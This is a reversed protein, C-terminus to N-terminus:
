RRRMEFTVTARKAREIRVIRPGGVAQYGERHVEIKHPGESLTRAEHPTGFGYDSDDIYIDAFNDGDPFIASISARGDSNSNIFFDLECDIGNWTVTDTWSGYDGAEIRVWHLGPPLDAASFPAVSAVQKGDIWIGEVVERLSFPTANITLKAAAPVPKPKRDPVVVPKDEVPKVPEERIVLQTDKKPIITTDDRVAFSSDTATDRNHELILPPLEPEPQPAFIMYGVAVAAILLLPYLVWRAVFSSKVKPEKQQPPQQDKRKETTIPLTTEDPRSIERGVQKKPPVPRRTASDEFSLADRIAAAFDGATAFREAPPKAMAHLIIEEQVRTLDSNFRTPPPPPEELHQKMIGFESEATFPVLGTVMEFFTVGLSYIDSRGDIDGHQIQEPSMYYLSGAGQGTRTKHASDVLKAIGFDTVKVTGETNILINSPKIDRHIVHNKHAYGIADLIQLVIKAADAFSYAGWDAITEGVTRGEVYEMVIFHHGESILYQYITVINNHNLRALSKAERELKERFDPDSVLEPHLTKLGVNRDLREDRAKYFIGMGGEGRKETITYIDFKKGIM